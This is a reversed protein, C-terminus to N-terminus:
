DRKPRKVRNKIMIDEVRKPMESFEPQDDNKDMLRYGILMLVMSLASIIIPTLVGVDLKATKYMLVESLFHFLAVLFSIFTLHYVAKNYFSIACTIRLIAALFTWIGFLRSALDNVKEPSGTYLRNGLFSFDIFCFITNGFAVMGVM